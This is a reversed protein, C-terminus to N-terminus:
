SSDAGTPYEVLQLTTGADGHVHLVCGGWSEPVEIIVETNVPIRARKWDCRLEGGAVRGDIDDFVFKHRLLEHRWYAGADGRQQRIAGEFAIAAPSDVLDHLEAALAELQTSGSQLGLEEIEAWTGLATRYQRTALQLQFLNKIAMRYARSDDLYSGKGMLASRLHAAAKGLEGRQQALSARAMQIWSSEYLTWTGKGLEELREEAGDLDGEQILSQLKRYSRLFSTRAGTQGPVVYIVTYDMCQHVPEGQVTAPQFKGKKRIGELAAREFVEVGSSDKVIPDAVEGEPTICLNLVVWGEEGKIATLAPYPLRWGPLGRAPTNGEITRIPAQGTIAASGAEEATQVASADQTADPPDAAGLLVFAFVALVAAALGRPRM